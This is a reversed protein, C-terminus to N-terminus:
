KKRNSKKRKLSKKQLSKKRRLSKKGGKVTTEKKVDSIWSAYNSPKQPQPFLTYFTDIIFPHRPNKRHLEYISEIREPENKDKIKCIECAINIQKEFQSQQKPSIDM